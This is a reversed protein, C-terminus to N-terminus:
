HYGDDIREFRFRYLPHDPLAPVPRRRVEVVTPGDHSISITVSEVDDPNVELWALVSLGFDDMM